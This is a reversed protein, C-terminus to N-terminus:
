RVQWPIGEMVSRSAGLITVDREDTDPISPTCKHALQCTDIIVESPISGFQPLPNDILKWREM